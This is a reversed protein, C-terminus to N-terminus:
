APALANTGVPGARRAKPCSTVGTTAAAGAAGLSPTLASSAFGAPQAGGQIRGLRGGGPGGPEKPERAKGMGPPEQASAVPLLLLLAAGLLMVWRPTPGLAASAM